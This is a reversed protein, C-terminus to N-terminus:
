GKRISFNNADAGKEVVWGFRKAAHKVAERAYAQHVRGVVKQLQDAPIRSTARGNELAVTSGGATFVFRGGPARIFGSRSVSNFESQLAKELLDHDKVNRLDVVNTQITNCPM